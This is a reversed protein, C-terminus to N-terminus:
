PASVVSGFSSPGTGKGKRERGKEDKQNEPYLPHFLHITYKEGKLLGCRIAHLSILCKRLDKRISIQMESTTQTTLHNQVLIGGPKQRIEAAM